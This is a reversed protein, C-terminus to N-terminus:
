LAASPGKELSAALLEEAVTDSMRARWDAPPPIPDGYRVAPASCQMGAARTLPRGNQYLCVFVQVDRQAGVFLMGDLRVRLRVAKADSANAAVIADSGAQEVLTGPGLGRPISGVPGVGTTSCLTPAEQPKMVAAAMQQLHKDQVKGKLAVLRAVHEQMAVREGFENSPLRDLRATYKDILQQVAAVDRQMKDLGSALKNTTTQADSAISFSDGALAGVAGTEAGATSPRAAGGAVASPTSQGAVSATDELLRQLQRRLSQNERELQMMSSRAGRRGGVVLASPVLQGGRDSTSSRESDADSGLSKKALSGAQRRRSRSVGGRPGERGGRWKRSSAQSTTRGQARSYHTEQARKWLPGRAMDRMGNRRMHRHMEGSRPGIDSLQM